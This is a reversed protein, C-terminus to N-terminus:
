NKVPFYMSFVSGKGEVSDAEIFGGHNEMIKKCIALGVGTGSYEQKGHLRQFVEFIKEKYQPDFGIGNDAISIKWYKKHDFTTKSSSIRIQPPIDAKSYKVANDLINAFLQSMQTPVARVTPLEGDIQLDVSEDLDAAGDGVMENLDTKEFDSTDRGIRSYSLLDMILGQMREATAVISTFYSMVQPSFEAKREHIRSTFMMIKRLPEQLDHSAIFAFSTLEDNKRELARNMKELHLAALKDDTINKSTMNVFGDVIEIAGSLWMTEGDKKAEVEYHDPSDSEIAKVMRGFVGNEFIGPYVESCLKGIVDDPTLGFNAPVEWNTYIIRFDTIAGDNSRVPEYSAIGFQASNLVSDLFSAKYHHPQKQQHEM